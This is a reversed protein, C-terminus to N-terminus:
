PFAAGVTQKKKFDDNHTFFSRRGANSNLCMAADTSARPFTVAIHKSNGNNCGQFLRFVSRLGSAPTRPADGPTHTRLVPPPMYADVSPARDGMAMKGTQRLKM